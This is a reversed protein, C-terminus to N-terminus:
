NIRKKYICKRKKVMKKRKIHELFRKVIRSVEKYTQFEFSFCPLEIVCECSMRIQFEFKNQFLPQLFLHHFLKCQWSSIVFSLMSTPVLFLRFLTLVFSSSFLAIASCACWVVFPLNDVFYIFLCIQQCVIFFILLTTLLFFFIFSRLKAFMTLFFSFIVLPNFNQLCHQLKNM